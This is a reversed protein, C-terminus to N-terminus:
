VTEGIKIWIKNVFHNFFSGQMVAFSKEALKRFTTSTSLILFATTAIYLTVIKQHSIGGFKSKM